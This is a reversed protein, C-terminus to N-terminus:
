ASRLVPERLLSPIDRAPLPRSFIYGQVIDCGKAIIVDLQAQTEIGEVIVRLGLTHAMAAIAAVIEADERNNHIEIIFSRDIKLTSIPFKRLYSLSSYGTGFDDLAVRVGNEVLRRLASIARDPHRMIASETIEIEIRHASLQYKSIANKVIAAVDQREFQVGSVNVSIPVDRLGQKGWERAQRCAEEIVWEGLPLILGTDEAMPIFTAPSVSGMEPDTWRVLAELGVIERNHPNIQPQYHLGLRDDIIAKRLKNELTARQLLTANMSEQFYQYANKGLKKAHYMAIDANKILDSADIGDDPYIAIGISAGVHCDNGNLIVKKGIVDIFRRAVLAPGHMDRVGGLLAIFEDGGLRALFQDPAAGARPPVLLDEERMSASLRRAIEKLLQDGADHGVTDNIHKFGDIDVFLVGVKQETRKAQALTRTLFERFMTRNPLGTLNDHYALFRVREDAAKLNSAMEEVSRALQGVEDASDIGSKVDWNGNGIEAAIARLRRVPRVILSDLVAIL